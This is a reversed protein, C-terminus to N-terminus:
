LLRDSLTVAAKRVEDTLDYDLMERYGVWVYAQHEDSLRVEGAIPEAIGFLVVYPLGTYAGSAIIYSDWAVIPHIPHVILGTEQMVESDLAHSVDQGGELKGGPCEWKLANHRDDEARQLILICKDPRKIFARSVLVVQPRASPM